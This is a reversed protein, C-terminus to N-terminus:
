TPWQDGMIHLQANDTAAPDAFSFPDVEIRQGKSLMIPLLRLSAARDAPGPRFRNNPLISGPFVAALTTPNTNRPLQHDGVRLSLSTGAAGLTGDYIQLSTVRVRRPVELARVETTSPTLLESFANGTIRELAHFLAANKTLFGTMTIRNGRQSSTGSGFYHGALFGGPIVQSVDLKKKVYLPASPLPQCRQQWRIRLATDDDPEASNLVAGADTVFLAGDDTVRNRSGLHTIIMGYGQPALISASLSRVGVAGNMLVESTFAELQDTRGFYDALARIKEDPDPIALCTQWPTLAPATM